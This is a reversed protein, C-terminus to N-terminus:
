VHRATCFCVYMLCEYMCTHICVYIHVCGHIHICASMCVYMCLYEHRDTVMCVYRNVHLIWPHTAVHMCAHQHMYVFIHVNM